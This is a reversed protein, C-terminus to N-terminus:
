SESCVNIICSISSCNSIAGSCRKWVRYSSKTSEVLGRCPAYWHTAVFAFAADNTGTSAFQFDTNYHACTLDLTNLPTLSLTGVRPCTFSASLSLRWEHSRCKVPFNYLMISCISFNYLTQSSINLTAFWARNTQLHKFSLCSPSSMFVTELENADPLYVM